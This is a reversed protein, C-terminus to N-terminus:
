SIEEGLLQEPISSPNQYFSSSEAAAAADVYYLDHCLCYCYPLTAM